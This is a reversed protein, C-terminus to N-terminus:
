PTAVSMMYQSVDFQCHALADAHSIAAPRTRARTAVIAKITSKNVPRAPRMLQIEKRRTAAAARRERRFTKTWLRSAQVETTGCPIESETITVIRSRIAATLPHFTAVTRVMAVPALRHNM